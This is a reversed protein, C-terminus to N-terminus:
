ILHYDKQHNASQNKDDVGKVWEKYDKLLEKKIKYM